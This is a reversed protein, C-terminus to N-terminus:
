DIDVKYDIVKEMVREIVVATKGSGASAAVLINKNQLSIALKQKDSWEMFCGVAVIM